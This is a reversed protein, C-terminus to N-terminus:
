SETRRSGVRQRVERAVLELAPRMQELTRRYVDVSTGIPDGVEVDCGVFSLLLRTRGAADPVLEVVRERHYEEMVLVLDAAEIMEPEFQQARHRTLDLGAERLVQVAMATAPGGVPADTGASYVFAPIGELMEALASSAMPSRCSNGTCVVLVSFFLGPGLRVLEGLEYELDLIALKGRRDVVAPRVGFNVSTPGPGGAGGTVVISALKGLEDALKGPETEEEPVGFWVEGDARRVIEKTLPEAAFAVGFRGAGFRGVVPGAMVKFALEQYHREVGALDSELEDPGAILRYPEGFRALEARNRSLVCYGDLMPVVALGRGLEAVVQGAVEAANRPQSRVFKPM